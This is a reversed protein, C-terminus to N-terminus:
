QEKVIFLRYDDGVPQTLYLAKATVTAVKIVAFNPSFSVSLLIIFYLISPYLSRILFSVIKMSKQMRQTELM